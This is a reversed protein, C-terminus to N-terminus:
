EPIAPHFRVLFRLALDSGSFSTVLPAPGLRHHYSDYTYAMEAGAEFLMGLALTVGAGVEFGSGNITANDQTLFTSIRYAVLPTVCVSSDLLFARRATLRLLGFDDRPGESSRDEPRKGPGALASLWVSYEPTIKYGVGMGSLWGRFPANQLVGLWPEAYAEFAFGTEGRQSFAESMAFSLLAPLLFHFARLRPLKM